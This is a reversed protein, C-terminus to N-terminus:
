DRVLEVTSTAEGTLWTKGSVFTLRLRDSSAEFRYTGIPPGYGTHPQAPDAGEFRLTDSDVLSWTGEQAGGTGSQIYEQTLTGDPALNLSQLSSSGVPIWAGVITSTTDLAADSSEDIAEPVGPPSSCGLLAALCVTGLLLAAHRIRVRV